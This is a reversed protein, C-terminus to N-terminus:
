KYVKVISDAVQEMSWKFTAEARDSGDIIGMWYFCAANYQRCLRSMDAAQRGAEAKQAATSNKNITTENAGNSGYEGIIVPYGKSIVYNQLREFMKAIENHCADTWKFNYKNVWDYPDYSHVEVIVHGSTAESAPIQLNSLPQDGSAGSYTTVILNRYQNNGGTARVAAVFTEAWSNVVSYSSSSKPQSWSYNKDLMENYGEFILKDGYDRFRTAIQTWLKEYCEKGTLNPWRATKNNYKDADAVVWADDHAATDHHVNLICYMGADIVYDVIQQVRDMWEKDVTGDAQIHQYWTVPVRVAGFGKEKLAKMLHADTLPQGWAMEYKDSTQHDGIWSGHSDLTNGLNWGPGMNLVAQSASEHEDSPEPQENAKTTFSFTTKQAPINKSNKVLGAPITVTVSEGAGCTMTINLTKSVAKASTISGSTTTIQTYSSETFIILQDYTVTININGPELDTSGDAPSISVVTPVEVSSSGGEENPNEDDSGGCATFSVLSLLSWFLFIYKKM